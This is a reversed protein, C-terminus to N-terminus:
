KTAAYYKVLRIMCFLYKGPRKIKKGNGHHDNSGNSGPSRITGIQEEMKKKYKHVLHPNDRENHHLSHHGTLIQTVKTIVIM